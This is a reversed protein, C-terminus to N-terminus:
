YQFKEISTTGFSNVESLVLHGNADYTQLTEAQVVNDMPSIFAQTKVTLATSDYSMRKYELYGVLNGNWLKVNSEEILDGNSDYAYNVIYQEQPSSTFVTEVSFLNDNADYLYNSVAQNGGFEGTVVQLLKGVNSYFKQQTFEPKSWDFKGANSTAFEYMTDLLDSKDVYTYTRAYYASTSVCKDPPYTFYEKSVRGLADFEYIICATLTSGVGEYQYKYMVGTAPDYNVEEHYDVSWAGITPHFVSLDSVIWAKLRSDYVYTGKEDDVQDGDYDFAFAKPHDNELRLFSHAWASHSFLFALTCLKTTHRLLGNM